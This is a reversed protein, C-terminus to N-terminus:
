STEPQEQLLRRSLDAFDEVVLDFEDSFGTDTYDDGPDELRPRMYFSKYGSRMAARLDSPHAAVMAIEDPQYGIIDAARAYSRPDPKYIGLVDCSLIGDWDIGNARSSGVAM